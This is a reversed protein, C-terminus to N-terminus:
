VIDTSASAGFVSLLQIPFHERCGAAKIFGNPALTRIHPHIQSGPTLKRGLGERRSGEVDKMKREAAYDELQGLINGNLYEM